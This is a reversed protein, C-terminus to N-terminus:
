RVSEPIECYDDFRVKKTVPVQGNTGSCWSPLDPGCMLEALNPHRYLDSVIFRYIQLSEESLMMAFYRRGSVLPHEEINTDTDPGINEFVPAIMDDTLAEIM